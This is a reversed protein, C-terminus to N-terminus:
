LVMCTTSLGLTQGVVLGYKYKEEMTFLLYAEITAMESNGDFLYGKGSTGTSKAVAYISYHNYL